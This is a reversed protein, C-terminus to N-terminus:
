MTKLSPMGHDIRLVDDVELAGDKILSVLAESQAQAFADWAKRFILVSDEDDRADDPNTTEKGLKAQEKAVLEDDQRASLEGPLPEDVDVDDAAAFRRPTRSTSRDRNEPDERERERERAKEELVARFAGWRGRELEFSPSSPRAPSSPTGVPSDRRSGAPSWGRRSPSGQLSSRMSASASRIVEHRMQSRQVERKLKAAVTELKKQDRVTTKTTHLPTNNELKELKQLPSEAPEQADGHPTVQGSEPAPTSVPADETRGRAADQPDLHHSAQRGARDSGARELEDIIEAIVLDIGHRFDTFTKAVESRALLHRKVNVGAPDLRDILDLASSSTILAQQLGQVSSIMDRYHKLSWRSLAIELSTEELRAALALYDARITKVLLQRM